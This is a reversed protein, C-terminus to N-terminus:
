AAPLTPTRRMERRVLWLGPLMPIWTTWGRTLLTAVLAAEVPVGGAALTTICAAEFTGLGLPIPGLMAAMLGLVFAGYALAFSPQVGIAVLMSWLTAADLLTVVAELLTMRAVLRARRLLTTPAGIYADLLTAMGPLRRVFRPVRGVRRLSLLATPVVVCVLLFAVVVPGMWVRWAGRWDLALAGTIACLGYAAYHAGLGAILAAMCDTASAGRRVLSSVLYANGSMGGSPVSQDVFLKQLALPLLVRFPQRVRAADLAVAWTWATAVYTGAQLVLAAVLWAPALTRTIRVFREVDGLRAAVAVVSLLALAGVAWGARRLRPSADDIPSRADRAADMAFM